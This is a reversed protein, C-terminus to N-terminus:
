VEYELHLALRLGQMGVAKAKIAWVDSDTENEDLLGQFTIIGTRFSLTADYVQLPDADKYSVDGLPEISVCGSIKIDVNPFKAYVPGMMEHLCPAMDRCFDDLLHQAVSVASAQKLASLTCELTLSDRADSWFMLEKVRPAAELLRYTPNLVAEAIGAIRIKTVFKKWAM